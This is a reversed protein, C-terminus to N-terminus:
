KWVFNFLVLGTTGLYAGIWDVPAGKDFPEGESPVVFFFVAFVVAGLISRTRTLQMHSM